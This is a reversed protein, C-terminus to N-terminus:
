KNFRRRARAGLFPVLYNWASSPLQPGLGSRVASKISGRAGKFDKILLFGVFFRLYHWAWIKKLLRPNVSGESTEREMMKHMANMLRTLNKSYGSAVDRYYVLSEDVLMVEGLRSLRLWMDWDEAGDLESRFGGLEDLQARRAIVTSTQFRNLVLIDSTWFTKTALESKRQREQEFLHHANSSWNSAVLVARPNNEVKKLQIENKDLAWIDDADLFAIWEFKANKIGLNRASSPGGNEKRILQVQPFNTTVVACTQDTSEDDIVIVEDPAVSQAYVSELAARITGQSNFTPIVVSLTPREM